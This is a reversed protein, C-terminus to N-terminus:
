SRPIRGIRDGLERVSNALEDFAARHHGGVEGSLAEIRAHLADLQQSVGTELDNIRAEFANLRQQNDRVLDGILLERIQDMKEDGQDSDTLGTRISNLSTATM